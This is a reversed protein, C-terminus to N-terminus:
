VIIRTYALCTGRAAFLAYLLSHVKCQSEVAFLLHSAYMAAGHTMM